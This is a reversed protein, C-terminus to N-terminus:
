PFTEGIYFIQTKFLFVLKIHICITIGIIYKKVLQNKSVYPKKKTLNKHYMFKFYFAM